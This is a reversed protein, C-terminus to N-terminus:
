PWDSFTKKRLGSIYSQYCLDQNQRRSGPDVFKQALPKM